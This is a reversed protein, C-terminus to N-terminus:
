KKSSLRKLRLTIQQQKLLFFKKVRDSKEKTLRYISVSYKDCENNFQNDKKELIKYDKSSIFVIEKRKLSALVHQKFDFSRLNRYVISRSLSNKLITIFSPSYRVIFRTPKHLFYTLLMMKYHSLDGVIILREKKRAQSFGNLSFRYCSREQLWVFFRHRIEPMFVFVFIFVLVNIMGTFAFLQATSFGLKYVVIGFGTSLVMFIANVINNGAIAQSCSQSLSRRQM